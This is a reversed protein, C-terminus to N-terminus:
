KTILSKIQITKGSERVFIQAIHEGKKLEDTILLHIAGKPLNNLDYQQVYEGDLYVEMVGGTNNLHLALLDGTFEYRISHNITSSSYYDDVLVFGDSEKPTNISRFDDHKTLQHLPDIRAYTITKNNIVNENITNFISEAYLNYGEENPIGEETTIQAISKGTTDFVEEGDISFVGYYDSTKEIANVYKENNKLGNEIFTFVEARPQDAIVRNLLTEYNKEFQELTLRDIDHKGFVIMVLDQEIEKKGKEYMFLGDFVDAGQKTIQHQYVKNNYKKEIRSSIQQQLTEEEDLGNGIVMFHIKKENILKTYFDRNEQESQHVRQEMKKQAQKSITKLKQNYQLSGYVILGVFIVSAFLIFIVKKSM